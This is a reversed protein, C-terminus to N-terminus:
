AVGYFLSAIIKIISFDALVSPAEEIVMEINKQGEALSDLLIPDQLNLFVFSFVSLCFFSGIIFQKRFKFMNEIM